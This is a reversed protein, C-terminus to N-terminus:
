CRSKLKECDEENTSLVDEFVSEVPPEDVFAYPWCEVSALFTAEYVVMQGNRGLDENHSESNVRKKGDDEAFGVEVRGHKTRTHPMLSSVTDERHAIRQIECDHDDRDHVPMLQRVALTDTIDSNGVM